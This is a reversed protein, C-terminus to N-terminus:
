HNYKNLIIEEFSKVYKKINSYKNYQQLAYDSWEKFLQKDTLLRCALEIYEEGDGSTIAHDIGFFQGGYRGQQPGQEDYMTVVPCGAAMGDLIGLASGFPFENLYLHMSRAYQSPASVNGLSHFREAVGYQAFINKIREPNKIAGIPAYYANPVQQLIKAIVHCMENSLRGDLKTSITTMVLAEEPLGLSPLSFPEPLWSKRVDVAFPLAVVQTNLKKYLDRYLEVAAESSVIALDFGPYKSQSGHEFLVRLPAHVMQTAMMNITDPGHFVVIDVGLANLQHALSQASVLYFYSKEDLFTKVGSNQFEYITTNGRNKSSDSTYLNSPYELFHEGLIETSFVLIEFKDRTHNLILNELLRTPAHGGSVIQPVVHALILKEKQQHPKVRRYQALQSLIDKFHDYVEPGLHKDSPVLGHHDGYWRIQGLRMYLAPVRAVGLRKQQISLLIRKAVEFLWNGEASDMQLDANSQHLCSKLAELLPEAYAQFIEKSGFFIPHFKKSQFMTYNQSSFQEHPYIELIFILHQPDSIAEVFTPFQLMQFFSAVTTFAFIAQSGKLQDLYPSLDAQIPEFFIIPIQDQIFLQDLPIPQSYQVPYWPFEPDNKKFVTEIFQPKKQQLQQWGHTLTLQHRVLAKLPTPVEAMISSLDKALLFSLLQAEGKVKALIKEYVKDQSLHQELFHSLLSNQIFAERKRGFLAADLFNCLLHTLDDTVFFDEYSANPTPIIQNVASVLDDELYFDFYKRVKEHMSLNLQM